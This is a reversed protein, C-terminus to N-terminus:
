NMKQELSKVMIILKQFLENLSLIMGSYINKNGYLLVGQIFVIQPLLGVNSMKLKKNGINLM